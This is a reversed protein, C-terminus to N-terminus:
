NVEGHMISRSNIYYIAYIEFKNKMKSMPKNVWEQSNSWQLHGLKAYIHVFTSQFGMRASPSIYKLEYGILFSLSFQNIQYFYSEFYPYISRRFCWTQEIKTLIYARIKPLVNELLVYTLMGHLTLLCYRSLNSQLAFASFTSKSDVYYVSQITDTRHFFGRSVSQWKTNILFGFLALLFGYADSIFAPGPREGALGPRIGSWRRLRQAPM